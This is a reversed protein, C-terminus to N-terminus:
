RGRAAGGPQEDRAGVRRRDSRATHGIGIEYIERSAGMAGIVVPIDYTKGKADVVNTFLM